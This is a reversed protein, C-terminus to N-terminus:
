KRFSPMRMSVNDKSQLWLLTVTATVLVAKQMKLIRNRAQLANRESILGQLADNNVLVDNDGALQDERDVSTVQQLSPLIKNYLKEAKVGLYPVKSVLPIKKSVAADTKQLDVAKNEQAAELGAVVCLSLMCVMLKKM